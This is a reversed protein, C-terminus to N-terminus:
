DRIDARPTWATTPLASPRVLSKSRTSLKSPDSCLETGSEGFALGVVAALQFWSATGRKLISDQLLIRNELMIGGEVDKRHFAVAMQLPVGRYRSAPLRRRIHPLSQTRPPGIGNDVLRVLQSNGASSSQARKSRPTM